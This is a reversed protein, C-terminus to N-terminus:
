YVFEGDADNRMSGQGLSCVGDALFTRTALSLDIYLRVTTVTLRTRVGYSTKVHKLINKENRERESETRGHKLDFVGDDDYRLTGCRRTGDTMAAPGSRWDDVFCGIEAMDTFGIAANTATM